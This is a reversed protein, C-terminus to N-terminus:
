KERVCYYCSEGDLEGVFFDNILDKLDARGYENDNVCFTYGGYGGIMILDSDYFSIKDACYWGIGDVETYEQEENEEVDYCFDIAQGKELSLIAQLLDAQNAKTLKM